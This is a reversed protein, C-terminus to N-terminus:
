SKLSNPRNKAIIQNKWNIVNEIIKMGSETMISEPHFQVGLFKDEMSELAMPVDVESKAMVYKEDLNCVKWSHYLGVKSYDEIGRFLFSKPSIGRLRTSVGHMVKDQNELKGGKFLALAQFGLCVGFLPVDNLQCYEICEFMNVKEAPLGPGPSLVVLSYNSLSGIILHDHFVIEVKEGGNEFYHALNYTFSDYFDVVLVM